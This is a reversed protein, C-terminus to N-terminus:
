IYYLFVKRPRTTRQAHTQAIIIITIIPSHTQMPQPTARNAPWDVCLLNLFNIRIHSPSVTRPAEFHNNMKISFQIENQERESTRENTPQTSTVHRDFYYRAIQLITQRPFFTCRAQHM